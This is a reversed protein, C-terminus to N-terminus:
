KTPTFFLPEDFDDAFHILGKASGFKPQSSQRAIPVLEVAPAGNQEIIIKEGNLASDILNPLTIKAQEISVQQM